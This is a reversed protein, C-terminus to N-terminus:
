EPHSPGTVVNGAIIEPKLAEVEAKLEASVLSDLDHFPALGVGTNELTGVIPEEGGKFTGDIVSKVSGFVTADMLKMVSTLTISAYTPNVLYWDSDVGIIYTNGRELAAAATGLGVPGAVPMIIDAGEDMLSIGLEKGKTQDDFSSSFLGADPNAPDWGLVEVATGHKENYAAVGRALGDMFITVTPIPFGGYTGIKGTKTVGAAVYGALFAAEDTNFSQPQINAIPPDYSVDVISFKQDPNAAAAAATADALFFGVPIILDCKEEIFANLNKEYDAVEQSELYKGEVGLEAVAKQVGKWATENFSKDDIGGTDTIQCVKVKKEGAPAPAAAPACASLLMSALVLISVVVTLRKFM